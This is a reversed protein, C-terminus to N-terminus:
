TRRVEDALALMSVATQSWRNLRLVRRRGSEGLARRRPEDSLLAVLARELAQLDGYSPLVLGGDGVAEEVGGGACAVVPVGEKLAELFVFGFSEYASPLAFVKAARYALRLQRDDPIPGVWRVHEEVAHRAMLERLEPEESGHGVLVLVVDDGAQKRVAPLVQILDATGKFRSLRAVHLIARRGELRHEQRFRALGEPDSPFSEVGPRVVRVRSAALCGTALLQNREAESAPVALDARGV